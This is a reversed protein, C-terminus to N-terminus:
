RRMPNSNETDDFYEGRLNEGDRIRASGLAMTRGVCLESGRGPGCSFTSMLIKM